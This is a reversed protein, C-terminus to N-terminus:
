NTILDNEFDKIIVDPNYTCEMSSSKFFVFTYSSLETTLISM